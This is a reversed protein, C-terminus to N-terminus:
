PTVTRAPLRRALNALLPLAVAYVGSVALLAPWTGAPFRLADWAGGAAYAAPGSLAGILAALWWPKTSLFAFSARLGTALLLWLAVMWGPPMAGFAGDAVGGHRMLVLGAHGLGADAVTGILAAILPLRAERFRWLHLGLAPITALPGALPLDRAAGLVAALWGVQWAVGHVLNYILPTM